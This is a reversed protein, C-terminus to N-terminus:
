FLMMWMGLVILVLVALPLGYTRLWMSFNLRKAKSAFGASDSKLKGAMDGIESLSKERELLSNINQRLITKVEDLEQKAELMDQSPSLYIQRKKKIFRDFKIFFYPREITEIKSRLDVSEGSGWTKKLEQQFEAIIEDLFSLALKRPYKSETCTLYCIGDLTKYYYTHSFSTDVISSDASRSVKKLINKALNKLEYNEKLLDEYTECLIM